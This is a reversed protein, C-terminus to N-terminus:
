DVLQGDRGREILQISEAVGYLAIVSGMRPGQTQGFLVEYLTKFWDRLNEYGNERGVAYVESQIDEAVTGDPIGQLAVILDDMAQQERADPARHSKTPVIFDQYYRTAYAVMQDLIPNRAPSAGPAYRGLFGWLVDPDDTNCASVLNLLMAFSVPVQEDPPTGDHIFWAPNALQESPDQDGFKSLHNLYEDVAKPIIDFFLRKARGPSQFMFLQLSEPSAYALWEDITLGNGRSKSIKEGNEDLFLEYTFSEPPRGGIVKCIRSSLRVSDILDKGSMEYQTGLAMWRMAWDAKWQLKCQGGTVSTETPTGDEETYVLMGAGPDTEMVAAQLVKGSVKSVPLFPSYTARRAEGLTPTVIDVVGQHHHLVTRMADDFRGSQYCETASLFEYDFGFRDLFARLMANNHHAFSEHTGFPDPVQSLPKGIHAALMEGNPINDPVARMGDMDDSFAILRSPVDSITNFAQRVMATRAVEAFTGIHPLGSPGYGTQFIVEPIPSKSREIRKTLKRAERFPWANSSMAADSIDSM